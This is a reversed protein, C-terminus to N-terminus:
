INEVYFLRKKIKKKFIISLITIILFFVREMNQFINFYMQFKNINKLYCIKFQIQNMCIANINWNIHINDLIYIKM